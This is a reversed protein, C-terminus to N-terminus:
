WAKLTISWSSETAGVHRNLERIMHRGRGDVTVTHGMRPVLTRAQHDDLVIPSRDVDVYIATGDHFELRTLRRGM